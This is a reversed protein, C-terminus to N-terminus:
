VGVNPLVWSLVSGSRGTPQAPNVLHPLTMHGMSHAKSVKVKVEDLASAIVWGEGRLMGKAVDTKFMNLTHYTAKEQIVTWKWSEVHERLERCLLVCSERNRRLIHRSQRLEQANVQLLNNLVSTDDM